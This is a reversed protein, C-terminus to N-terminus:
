EPRAAAAALQSRVLFRIRNIDIHAGPCETARIDRHGVIHSESLTPVHQIVLTCLAAIRDEVYPDLDDIQYNGIVCIGIGDANYPAQAPAAGAHAGHYQCRWRWTAEIRGRTMPKGNGVVFHYGIGEWGRDKLHANDISGTDGGPTGSHHIVIWQWPHMPVEIPPAIKAWDPRDGATPSRALAVVIATIGAIAILALLRAGREGHEHAGSM